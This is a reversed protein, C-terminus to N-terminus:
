SCRRCAGPQRLVRGVIRNPGIAIGTAALVFPLLATGAILAAEHGAVRRSLEPLAALLGCVLAGALLFGAATELRRATSRTRTIAYFLAVCALPIWWMWGPRLAELTDHLAVVLMAGIMLAPLVLLLSSFLGYLLVFGLRFVTHLGGESLYKSHNRLHRVVTSEHDGEAGFPRKGKEPKLTV